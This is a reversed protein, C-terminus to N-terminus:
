AKLRFAMINKAKENPYAWAKEFISFEIKRNEIGPLGPDHIKFSNEEFGKIVIFHGVYGKELNLARSNINCIIIYGEKLFKKIEELEPVRKQVNIIKIFQRAIKQEQKIDSHEIQARGTEEGFEAILYKGGEDIFRQTDFDEINIVEMGKRSLWILGAYPWTGLGEVKATIKELKKRSYEEEPYFYKLVMKLTAQFCHTDDPTNEYFPVSYDIKM